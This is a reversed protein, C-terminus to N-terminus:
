EGTNDEKGADTLKKLEHRAKMQLGKTLAVPIVVSLALIAILASNSLVAFGGITIWLVASLGSGIGFMLAKGTLKRTIGKVKTLKSKKLTVIVDTGLRHDIGLRSCIIELTIEEESNAINAAELTLAKITEIYENQVEKRSKKCTYCHGHRFRSGCIPCRNKVIRGKAAKVINAVVRGRATPELRGMLFDKLASTSSISINESLVTGAVVSPAILSRLLLLGAATAAGTIVVAAVGVPTSIPNGPIKIDQSKNWIKLKGAVTYELKVEATYIGTIMLLNGRKLVEKANIIITERREKGIMVHFNELEKSLTAVKQGAFIVEASVKELTVEKTVDFVHIDIVLDGEPDTIITERESLDKSNVKIDLSFGDETLSVAHAVLPWSVTLVLFAIVMGIQLRRNMICWHKEKKGLM